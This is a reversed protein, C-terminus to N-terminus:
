SANKIQNLLEYLGERDIIGGSEPNIEFALEYCEIAEDFRKKLMLFGAKNFYAEDFEPDLEIARDFLEIASKEKDMNACQIAKLMVTYPSNPNTKLTESIHRNLKEDDGLGKLVEGKLRIATENSPSLKIVEDFCEIAKECKNLMSYNRGKQIIAPINESDYKLIRNLYSNSKLYEEKESYINSIEFLAKTNEPNREIVTKYVEAADSLNNIKMLSNGKVMLIEESNDNECLEILKQHCDRSSKKDGAMEHADALASLLSIKDCDEGLGKLYIEVAKEYEEKELHSQGKKLIEEINNENDM